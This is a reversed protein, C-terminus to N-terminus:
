RRAEIESRHEITTWIREAIVKLDALTGDNEIVIDARPRKEASPMQAAIMRDASEPDIGRTEVIRARRLEEPADVLVVLDFRDELASEFLLPIDSVVVDFGAGSAAAVEEERLRGVAPHVVSELWLREAPDRFVIERMAARDLEGSPSVVATGWREVVRDFGESGPAIALRALVDSDIIWAGSARWIAAVTSKGAAINGTLAVNFVIRVRNIHTPAGPM